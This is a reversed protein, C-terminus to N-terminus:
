YLRGNELTVEKEIIKIDNHSCRHRISFSHRTLTHPSIM